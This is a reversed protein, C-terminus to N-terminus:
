RYITRATGHEIRFVTGGLTVGVIRRRADFAIPGPQFVPAVTTVTGDSRLRSVRSDTFESVFLSSDPAALTGTVGAARAARSPTAALV